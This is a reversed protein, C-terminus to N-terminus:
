AVQDDSIGRYEEWASSQVDAPINNETMVQDFLQRFSFDQSSVETEEEQEGRELYKYTVQLADVADPMVEGEDLLIRICNMHFISKDVSIATEYENLTLTKYIKGTPDEGHSYPQLSGTVIIRTGGNADKNGYENVRFEEPTHIHGTVVVPVKHSALQQYPLLNHQDFSATDWHGVVLDYHRDLYGGIKAAVSQFADYPCILLSAGSRTTLRTYDKTFIVNDLVACMTELVDLSSRLGTNRSIDHNGQMIVFDVDPNRKAVASIIGHVELLINNGVDFRDFLDGVMVVTKAGNPEMAAAFDGMQWKERDGRRHLPMGNHFSRGIHPDGVFRVAGKGEVHLLM